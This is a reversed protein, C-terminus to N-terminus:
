EVCSAKGEEHKLMDWLSEWAQLALTDIPRARHGLLRRTAGSGMAMMELAGKALQGCVAAPLASWSKSARAYRWQAAVVQRRTAMSKRLDLREERYGILLEPLAAFRSDRYSRLLLDYDQAKIAREDYRHGRFWEIRGMWSPHALYFGSWPHRCIEEHSTPAPRVGLPHGDGSFVVGGSGLLDIEPHHDLYAAQRAFRDPFCVDDGDMRAFYRGRALDVAQNLRHALGRSRTKPLLRIRQDAAFSRAVDLTADTSGDDILILEWDVCSQRQVSRLALALTTASNRVSMGVSILPDDAM